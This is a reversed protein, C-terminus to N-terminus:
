MLLIRNRGVSFASMGLKDWIIHIRQILTHISNRTEWLQPLTGMYYLIRKYREYKLIRPVSQRLQNLRQAVLRCTAPKIGLKTM